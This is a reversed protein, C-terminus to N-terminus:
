IELSNDWKETFRLMYLIVYSLKLNYKIARDARDCGFAYAHAKAQTESIQSIFSTELLLTYVIFRARVLHM